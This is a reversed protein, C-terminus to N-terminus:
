NGGLLNVCNEMLSLEYMKETFQGISKNSGEIGIELNKGMKNTMKERASQRDANANKWIKEGQGFQAVFKGYNWMFKGFSLNIEKRKREPFIETNQSDADDDVNVNM